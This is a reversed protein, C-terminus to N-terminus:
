NSNPEEKVAAHNTNKRQLKRLMDLCREINPRRASDKKCCNLILRQFEKDPVSQKIKKARNKPDLVPLKSKTLMEFMLAGFSFIDAKENFDQEATVEPAVSGYSDTLAAAASNAGLFKTTGFDSIKARRYKDLLINASSLSRHIIKPSQSHLYKLGTAVDLAIQIVDQCELTV